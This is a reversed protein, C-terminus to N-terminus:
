PAPRARYHFVRGGTAGILYYLTLEGGQADYPYLLTGGVCTDVMTLQAATATIGGMFHHDPPLGEDHIAWEFSTGQGSLQFTRQFTVNPASALTEEAAYLEYTGDVLPGGAFMGPVSAIPTPRVAVSTNQLTGCAVADSPQGDVASDRGGDLSM